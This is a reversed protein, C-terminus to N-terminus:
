QFRWLVLIFPRFNYNKPESGHVKPFFEYSSVAFNIM